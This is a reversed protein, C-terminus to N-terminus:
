AIEQVNMNVKWEWLELFYPFQKVSQSFQASRAVQHFLMEFEVNGAVMEFLCGNATHLTRSNGNKRGLLTCFRKPNHEFRVWRSTICIFIKKIGNHVISSHM